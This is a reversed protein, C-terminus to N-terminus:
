RRTPSLAGRATGGCARPQCRSNCPPRQIRCASSCLPIDPAEGDVPWVTFKEVGDDTHHLMLQKGDASAIPFFDSHGQGVLSGVQSGNSLKVIRVSKGDAVAALSGGADVAEISGKVDILPLSATASRTTAWVQSGQVIPRGAPCHLACRQRQQSGAPDRRIVRQRGRQWGCAKRAGPPQTWRQM